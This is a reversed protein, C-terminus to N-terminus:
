VELLGPSQFLSERLENDVISVTHVLHLVSKLGKPASAPHQLRAAVLLVRTHLRFLQLVELERVLASGSLAENSFATSSHPLVVYIERHVRAVRAAEFWESVFAPAHQDARAEDVASGVVCDPIAVLFQNVERSRRANM